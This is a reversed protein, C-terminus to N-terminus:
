RGVDQRPVLLPRTRCWLVKSPIRQKARYVSPNKPQQLINKYVMRDVASTRVHVREFGFGLTARYPPDTFRHPVTRDIRTSRKPLVTKPLILGTTFLTQEVTDSSQHSTKNIQPGM